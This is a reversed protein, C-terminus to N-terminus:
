KVANDACPLRDEQVILVISYGIMCKYVGGQSLDARGGDMGYAVSWVHQLDVREWLAKKIGSRGVEV